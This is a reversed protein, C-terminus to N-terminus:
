YSIPNPNIPNLQTKVTGNGGEAGFKFNIASLTIM